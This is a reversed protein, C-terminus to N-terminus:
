LSTVIEQEEEEKKIARRKEMKRKKGYGFYPSGFEFAPIILVINTSNSRVNKAKAYEEAAMDYQKSAVNHFNRSPMFDGDTLLVLETRSTQLALNRLHNVPYMVSHLGNKATRKFLYDTEFLVSIDLLADYTTEVREFLELILQLSHLLSEELRIYIAVSIVGNWNSAILEILDLRDM